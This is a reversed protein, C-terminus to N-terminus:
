PTNEQPSRHVWADGDKRIGARQIEKRTASESKGDRAALKGAADRVTMGYCNANLWNLLAGSADLRGKDRQRQRNQVDAEIQDADLNRKVDFRAGIGHTAIVTHPEGNGTFQFRMNGRGTRTVFCRWRVAGSITTQGMPKDPPRGNVGAKDSSHAVIVVPIGARTFKRVGQFFKSVDEPHNFSGEMAQSMNDILVLSHQHEIVEAYLKHWLAPTMPQLGYYRIKPTPTGEPLVESIHKAYASRDGDDCWGIAVSFERDRPVPRDLFDDGSVLAAVLASMLFSKGVKPQGFVLTSGSHIIGEILWPDANEAEKLADAHWMADFTV